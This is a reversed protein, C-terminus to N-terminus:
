NEMVVTNVKVAVTEIAGIEKIYNVNKGVVLEKAVAREKKLFNELSKTMREKVLKQGMFKLIMMINVTLKRLKIILGNTMVVLIQIQIQILIQILIKIKTSIKEKKLIKAVVLRSKLIMLIRLILKLADRM